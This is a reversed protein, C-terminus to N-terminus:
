NLYVMEMWILATLPSQKTRLSYADLLVSAYVNDELGVSCLKIETYCVNQMSGLWTIMPMTNLLNTVRM